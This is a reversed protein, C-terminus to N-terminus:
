WFYSASTAAVFASIFGLLSGDPRSIGSAASRRVEERRAESTMMTTQREVRGNQALALM